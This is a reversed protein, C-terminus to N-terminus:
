EEAKKCTMAFLYEAAIWCSQKKSPCRAWIFKVDSCRDKELDLATNDWATFLLSHRLDSCSPVLLVVDKEKLHLISMCSVVFVTGHLFYAMHDHSTCLFTSFCRRERVLKIWASWLQLGAMLFFICHNLNIKNWKSLRYICRNKWSPVNRYSHLYCFHRFM